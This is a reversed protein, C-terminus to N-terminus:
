PTLRMAVCLGPDDSAAVAVAAMKQRGLQLNMGEGVRLSAAHGERGAAQVRRETLRRLRRESVCAPRLGKGKVRTWTRASGRSARVAGDVAM